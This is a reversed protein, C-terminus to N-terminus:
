IFTYVTAKLTPIPHNGYLDIIEGLIQFTKRYESFNLYEFLLM